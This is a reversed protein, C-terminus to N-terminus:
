IVKSYEKVKQQSVIVDEYYTLTKQGKLGEYSKIKISGSESQLELCFVEEDKTLAAGTIGNSTIAAEKSGRTEGATIEREDWIVQYLVLPEGKGKVKKEGVYRCIIKESDKIERYVSQTVYISDTQASAEVRQAVNAVDGSIDGKEVITLGSNIGIRIHIQQRHDKGSNFRYLAKQMEISANVADETNEFYIMMGDGLKKSNCNYKEACPMMAERCRQVMLRGAIDGYRDFFDTSGKIDTFVVAIQRRFEGIKDDLTILQRLLEELDEESDTNTKSETDANYELDVKNEM